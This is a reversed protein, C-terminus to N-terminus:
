TGPLYRVPHFNLAARQRFLAAIVVVEAYLAIDGFVRNIRRQGVTDGVFDARNFGTFQRIQHQPGRREEAHFRRCDNFAAHDGHRRHAVDVGRDWRRLRHVIARHEARQAAGTVAATQGEQRLRRRFVADSFPQVQM